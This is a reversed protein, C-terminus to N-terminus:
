VLENQLSLLMNHLLVDASAPLGAAGMTFHSEPVYVSYKSIGLLSDASM